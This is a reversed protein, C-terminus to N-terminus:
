LGQQYKRQALLDPKALDPGLILLAEQWGGFLQSCHLLNLLIFVGAIAIYGRMYPKPVSVSFGQIGEHKLKEWKCVCTVM